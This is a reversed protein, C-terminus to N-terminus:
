GNIEGEMNKAPRFFGTGNSDPQLLIGPVRTSTFTDIAGYTLSITKGVGCSFRLRILWITGSTISIFQTAFTTLKRAGACILWAFTIQFRM